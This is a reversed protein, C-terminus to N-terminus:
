ANGKPSYNHNIAQQWWYKRLCNGAFRWLTVRNQLHALHSKLRLANGFGIRFATTILWKWIRWTDVIFSPSMIGGKELTSGMGSVVDFAFNYIDVWEQNRAPIKLRQYIITSQKGLERMARDLTQQISIILFWLQILLIDPNRVTFRQISDVSIGLLEAVLKKLIDIHKAFLM